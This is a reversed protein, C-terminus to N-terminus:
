TFGNIEQFLIETLNKRIQKKTSHFGLLFGNMKCFVAQSIFEILDLPVVTSKVTVITLKDRLYALKYFNLTVNILCIESSVNM